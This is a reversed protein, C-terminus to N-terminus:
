VMRKPTLPVVEQVVRFIRINFVPRRNAKLNGKQVLEFVCVDGEELNNDLVFEAWRPRFQCQGGRTWRCGVLWYDPAGRVKLEVQHDKTIMNRLAWEKPITLYLGKYVHTPLMVIGVMPVGSFKNRKVHDDSLKRARERERETITRRSSIYCKQTQKGSTFPHRAYSFSEELDEEDDDDDEKDNNDGDNVDDDNDDGVNEVPDGTEGFTGSRSLSGIKCKGKYVANYHSSEAKSKSSEKLSAHSGKAHSSVNLVTEDIGFDSEIDHMVADDNEEVHLTCRCSSESLNVSTFHSGERECGTHDFVMVEFTSDGVYSFVLFDHIDIGHDSVFRDWGRSFLVDEEERKVKVKWENISPGRLTFSGSLRERFNAVFERPIRLEREFNGLMVKFFNKTVPLRHWYECKAKLKCTRCIDAM